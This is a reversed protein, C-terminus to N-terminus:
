FNYPYKEQLFIKWGPNPAHDPYIKWFEKQATAYSNGGILKNRVMYMFVISASRNVGWLCHVYIKKNAINKEIQKITDDILGIDMKEYQPYDAYKYYIVNGDHFKSTNQDPAVDFYIEEACSLRLKTDTPASHQDGLYLNKTIKRM